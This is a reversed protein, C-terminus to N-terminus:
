QYYNHNMQPEESLLLCNRNGGYVCVSMMNMMWWDNLDTLKWDLLQKINSLDASDKKNVNTSLISSTLWCCSSLYQLLDLEILDIDIDFYPVTIQSFM